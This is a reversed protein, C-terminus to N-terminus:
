NHYEKSLNSERRRLLSSCYCGSTSHYRARTRASSFRNLLASYFIIIDILIIARALELSHRARASTAQFTSNACGRLAARACARAHM